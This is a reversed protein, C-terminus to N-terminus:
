TAKKREIKLFPDDKRCSFQSNINISHDQKGETFQESNMRQVNSGTEVYEVRFKDMIQKFEKKATSIDSSSFQMLRGNVSIGVVERNNANIDYIMYSGVTNCSPKSSYQNMAPTVSVQYDSDIIDNSPYFNKDTFQLSLNITGNFKNKNISVSQPLTTLAFDSEPYKTQIMRLYFSQAEAKLKTYNSDILDALLDETNDNRENLAGRSKILGSLGVTSISTAENTQLSLTFDYYANNKAFGASLAESYLTDNDFSINFTFVRAREDEKTSFTVPDSNLESVGSDTQCKAKWNIHEFQDRLEDMTASDGLNSNTSNEFSYDHKNSKIEGEISVTTIGGEVSKEKSITYRTLFGDDFSSDDHYRYNETVSHTGGFRDINESVSLLVPTANTNGILATTPKNALGKRSDVFIKANEFADTDESNTNFGKASITHTLQIFGDEGETFSFKDVPELVKNKTQFSDLEYARLTITYDVLGGYGNDSFDVSQIVCGTAIEKRGQVDGKDVTGDPNEGYTIITLKGFDNSFAAIIANKKENLLRFRENARDKYIDGGTIVSLGEREGEYLYIQGNLTINAAAGWIDGGYNINEYDRSVYPTPAPFCFADVGAANDIEYEVDIRTSPNAM